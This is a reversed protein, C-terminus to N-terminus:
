GFPSASRLAPGKEIAGRPDPASGGVLRAARRRTSTSIIATPPMTIPRSPPPSCAAPATACRACSLRARRIATGTAFCVSQRAAPWASAPSTSRTPPRINASRGEPGGGIRRCSYSGAHDFGTVHTGLHRPRRPGCRAGCPWRPPSRARQRSRRPPLPNRPRAAHRRHLWVRPPSLRRARRPRRDRRRGAVRPLPASGRGAGGAQPRSAASRSTSTSSTWAHRRILPM